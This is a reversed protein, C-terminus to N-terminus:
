EKTFLKEIEELAPKWQADHAVGNKWTYTVETFGDYDYQYDYKNYEKYVEFFRCNEPDLGYEKVIETALQESANTVSTGDGTNVFCIFTEGDDNFMEILCSSPVRGFGKYLHFEKTM